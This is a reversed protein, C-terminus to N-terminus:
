LFSPPGRAPEGPSPEPDLPAELFFRYESGTARLAPATTVTATIAEDTQDVVRCVACDGDAALSGGLHEIAHAGAVGQSALLLAAILGSLCRSLQRSSALARHGAATTPRRWSVM